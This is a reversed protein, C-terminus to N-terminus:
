FLGENTRIKDELDAWKCFEEYERDSLKQEMYQLSNSLAGYEIDEKVNMKKLTKYGNKCIKLYDMM